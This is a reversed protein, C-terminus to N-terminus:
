GQTHHHILIIVGVIILIFSTAVPTVYELKDIGTWIAGTPTTQQNPFNGTGYTDLLGLLGGGIILLWGIHVTEM